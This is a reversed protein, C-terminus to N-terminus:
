NKIVNNLEIISENILETKKEVSLNNKLIKTTAEIALSSIYNKVSINTDRVIQEIKADALFKRKEIQELLKKESLERLVTIKKDSEIKLNSIEQEVESERNKLEILIKQADNKINEAESIKNKIENIQTDLSSVLTKKVPRFIALIFLIFSVAVWFQPDSFM